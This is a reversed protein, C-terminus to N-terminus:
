RGAACNPSRDVRELLERDHSVVVLVGAGPRRGGRLAAAARAPRPQQHARRAAARRPARLLLRGAALLVTEGGSLEGVTRDLGVHASGSRGLEARAREEVDWDDGVTTSTSRARRRRGRHRAARARRARHGLAEDVRLAPTSPSTRRCTASSAPSPVSGHAPAARRRDAAAPHVQRRRQRRDPRHPGRRHRAVARRLREHRGAVPLVPRLLDRSASPTPTATMTNECECASHFPAVYALVVRRGPRSFPHPGGFPSPRSICRPRM